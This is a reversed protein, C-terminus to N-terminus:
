TGPSRRTVYTMASGHMSTFSLDYTSMQGASQM